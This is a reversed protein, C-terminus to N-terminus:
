DVFRQSRKAFMARYQQLCRGAGALGLHGDLDRTLVSVSNNPENDMPAFKDFLCGVCQFSGPDIRVPNNRGSVPFLRRGPYLDTRDIREMVSKITIRRWIQDDDILAM